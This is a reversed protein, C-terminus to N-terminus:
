AKRFIAGIIEILESWYSEVLNYKLCDISNLASENGDPEFEKDFWSTYEQANLKLRILWKYFIKQDQVVELM